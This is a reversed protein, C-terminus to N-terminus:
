NIGKFIWKNCFQADTLNEVAYDRLEHTRRYVDLKENECVKDNYIYYQYGADKQNQIVVYRDKEKPCNLKIDYIQIESAADAKCNDTFKIGTLNIGISGEFHPIFKRDLSGSYFTYLNYSSITNAVDVGVTLGKNKARTLYSALIREELFQNDQQKVPYRFFYFVLFNIFFLLYLLFLLIFLLYYKIKLINTYLYYMGYGIIMVGVPILLFARFFYSTGMISISSGIPAVV